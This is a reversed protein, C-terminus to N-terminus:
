CKREDNIRYDTWNSNDVIFCKSLPIARMFIDHWYDMYFRYMHKIDWIMNDLSIIKKFNDKHIYKFCELTEIDRLHWKPNYAGQYLGCVRGQYIVRDGLNLKFISKIGLWIYRSKLIFSKIYKM